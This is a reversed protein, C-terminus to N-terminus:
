SELYMDFVSAACAPNVKQLRNNQHLSYLQHIASFPLYQASLNSYNSSHIQTLVKERQEDPAAIVFRTEALSLHNHKYNQMRALGSKVGTTYEVEIVAPIKTCNGLWICDILEAAKTADPFNEFLKEKSLERVVGARESLFSDGIKICRDNKAVHTRFKFSNGIDVLAVQMQAHMRLEQQSLSSNDISSVYESASELYANSGMLESIIIDTDVTNHTEPEHPQDPLWILHKHGEKITTTSQSVEIRNPKCFHFEPTYGLLTELASRTNYSAGLTRDINVPKGVTFANAYRLIMSSSISQLPSRSSQTKRNDVRRIVIPGIPLTVSEIKIKTRTSANYYEFYKDRSLQSISKVLNEPTFIM